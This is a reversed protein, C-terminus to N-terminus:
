RRFAKEGANIEIPLGNEKPPIPCSFGDAYACYPNYCKNFDLQITNDRIDNISLDIYRGGGYTADYNTIDTFPVFLEEKHAANNLMDISQYAHLVLTSDHITFTLTAYERFPKQKGSHTQILFPVSGPTLSVSAWVCYDHDPPFFSLDKARAPQLPSRPDSLLDAVYQKRYDAISDLYSKAGASCGINLLLLFSLLFRMKKSFKIILQRTIHPKLINVFYETGQHGGLEGPFALCRRLRNKDEACMV